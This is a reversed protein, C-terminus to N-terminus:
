SNEKYSQKGFGVVEEKELDTIILRTNELLKKEIRAHSRFLCVLYLSLHKLQVWVSVIRLPDKCRVLEKFLDDMKESNM